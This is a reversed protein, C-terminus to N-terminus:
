ARKRETSVTGNREFALLMRAAAFAILVSIALKLVDSDLSNAAVVGILAGIVSGPIVRKLAALPLRGQKWILWTAFASNLFVSAMSTGRAVQASAFDSFLVALMPVYIVGGGLGFLPVAIGGLLGIVLAITLRASMYGIERAEVTQESFLMDFLAINSAGLLTLAGSLKVASALLLVAFSWTLLRESVLDRLRMGIKVGLFAGGSLTLAMPWVINEQFEPGLLHPGITETFSGLGSAVVISSVSLAAATAFSFGGLLTLMPVMIVGGGIGFATGLIGGVLGILPLLIPLSAPDPDTSVKRSFEPLARDEIGIGSREPTPLRGSAASVPPESTPDDIPVWAATVARKKSVASSRQSPSKDKPQSM